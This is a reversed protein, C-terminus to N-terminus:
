GGFYVADRGLRGFGVVVFFTQCSSTEDRDSEGKRDSHRRSRSNGGKRRNCVSDVRRPCTARTQM